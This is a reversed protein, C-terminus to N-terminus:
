ITHYLLTICYMAGHATARARARLNGGRPTFFPPSTRIPMQGHHRARAPPPALRLLCPRPMANHATRNRFGRCRTPRRDGCRRYGCRRYGCRRDDGDDDHRRASIGGRPVLVTACGGPGWGWRVPSHEGYSTKARSDLEQAPLIHHNTFEGLMRTRKYPPTSCHVYM